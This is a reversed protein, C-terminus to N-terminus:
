KRSQGDYTRSGLKRIKENPYRKSLEDILVNITSINNEVAGALIRTYVIHEVNDPVLSFGARNILDQSIYLPLGLGVCISIISQLDLKCNKDNIIKKYASATLGTREQFISSQWKMKNMYRVIIEALTEGVFDKAVEIDKQFAVVELLAKEIVAKNAEPDYVKVPRTERKFRFPVEDRFPSISSEIEPKDVTNNENEVDFFRRSSVINKDNDTVDNIAISCNHLNERAYNTLRYEGSKGQECYKPLNIVFHNEVYRFLGKDIISSLEKNNEIERYFSIIRNYNMNNEELKYKAVIKIATFLFNIALAVASLIWWIM